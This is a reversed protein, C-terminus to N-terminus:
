RYLTLTIKGQHKLETVDINVITGFLNWEMRNGLTLTLKTVRKRDEDTSILYPGIFSTLHKYADEYKHRMSVPGLHLQYGAAKIWASKLKRRKSEYLLYCHDCIPILYDSSVRRHSPIGMKMLEIWPKPWHYRDAKGKCGPTGKGRCDLTEGFDTTFQASVLELDRKLQRAVFSEPKDYGTLAPVITKLYNLEARTGTM